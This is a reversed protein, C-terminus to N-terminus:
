VSEKQKAVVPSATENSRHEHRAICTGVLNKVWQVAIDLAIGEAQFVPTECSLFIGEANLPEYLPTTGSLGFLGVILSAAACIDSRVGGDTQVIISSTKRTLTTTYQRNWSSKTDMTLGDAVKNHRCLMYCIPVDSLRPPRWGASYLSCIGNTIREVLPRDNTHVLGARGCSIEILSKSDCALLM